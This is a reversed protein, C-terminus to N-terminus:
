CYSNIANKALLKDRIEVFYFADFNQFLSHFFTTAFRLKLCPIRSVFPAKAIEQIKITIKQNTKYRSLIFLVFDLLDKLKARLSM